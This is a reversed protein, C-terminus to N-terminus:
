IYLESVNSLFLRRGDGVACQEESRVRREEWPGQWPGRQESGSGPQNERRLGTVEVVTESAEEAAGPFRWRLGSAWAAEPPRPAEVRGHRPSLQVRRMVQSRERTRWLMQGLYDDKEKLAVKTGRERLVSGGWNWFYERNWVTAVLKGIHWWNRKIERRKQRVQLLM